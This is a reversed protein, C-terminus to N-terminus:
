CFTAAVAANTAPPPPRPRPARGRHGERPRHGQGTRVLVRRRRHRQVARSLDPGDRSHHRGDPLLARRAARLRDGEAHGHRREARRPLIEAGQLWARAPEHMRVAVNRRADLAAGLSKAKDVLAATHGPSVLFKAGAEAVADAQAARCCRARGGGDHRSVREAAPADGGARRTDAADGRDRGRRRRAVRPRGPVADKVDVFTVVPIFRNAGLMAFSPQDAM